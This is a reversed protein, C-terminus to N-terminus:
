TEDGKLLEKLKNIEATAKDLDKPNYGDKKGYRAIYKLANIQHYGIVKEDSFNEDAFTWVDINGTHYHSSHPPLEMLTQEPYDAVEETVKQVREGRKTGRDCRVYGRKHYTTIAETNGDIGYQKVADYFKNRFDIDLSVQGREYNSIHKYNLGGILEGLEQQSLNHTARFRIIDNRKM